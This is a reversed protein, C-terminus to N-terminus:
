MFDTNRQENVTLTANGQSSNEQQPTADDDVENRISDLFSTQKTEMKEQQEEYLKRKEQLM